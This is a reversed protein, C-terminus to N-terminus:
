GVKPLPFVDHILLDLQEDVLDLAQRLPFPLVVDNAPKKRAVPKAKKETAAKAARVAAWRRRTAEAIRKRGAASIERKKAPPAKAKHFEAWRNKRAAAIRERPAASM